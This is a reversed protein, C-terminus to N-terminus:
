WRVMDKGPVKVLMTFRSLREVWHASTSRKSDDGFSICPPIRGKEARYERKYQHGLPSYAVGVPQEV